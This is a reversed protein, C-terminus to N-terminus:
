NWEDSGEKEESLHSSYFAEALKSFYSAEEASLPRSLRAQQCKLYNRVFLSLSPKYM